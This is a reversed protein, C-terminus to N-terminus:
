GIIKKLEDKDIKVINYTSGNITISFYFGSAYEIYALENNNEDLLSIEYQPGITHIAGTWRKSNKVLEIFKNIDKEKKITKEKKGDNVKIVKTKSVTDIIIAPVELEGEKQLGFTGLNECELIALLDKEEGLKCIIEESEDNPTLFIDKNETIRFEGKLEKVLNNDEDNQFYAFKNKGTGHFNIFVTENKFEYINNTNLYVESWASEYNKLYEITDGCACGECCKYENEKEEKKCGTLTLLAILILVSLIIKKM